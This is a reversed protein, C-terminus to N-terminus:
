ESNPETSSTDVDSSEKKPKPGKISFVRPSKGGTTPRPTEERAPSAGPSSYVVRTKKAGRKPKKEARGDRKKPTSPEGEIPDPEIKYSRARVERGSKAKIKDSTVQLKKHTVDPKNSKPSAASDDIIILRKSDKIHELWPKFDDRNYWLPDDYDEVPHTPYGFHDLIAM